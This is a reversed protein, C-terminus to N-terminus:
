LVDQYRRDGKNHMESRSWFYVGAPAGFGFFLFYHFNAYKAKFTKETIERRGNWEEVFKNKKLWGVYHRRQAQIALPRSAKSLTSPIM